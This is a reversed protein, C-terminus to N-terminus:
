VRREIAPKPKAMAEELEANKAMLAAVQEQLAEFAAPDIGKSVAQVPTANPNTALKDIQRQFQELLAEGFDQGPLSEIPHIWKHKEAESIAEAAENLPEMDPTPSGFFQYDRNNPANSVIIEGPYNCDSGDKPDFLRPVDYQKRLARGTIQDLESYEWKNDVVSLYHPGMLRWRAVEPM